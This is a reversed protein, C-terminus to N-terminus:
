VTADIITGVPQNTDTAQNAAAQANRDKDTENAHKLKYKTEEDYTVKGDKNAEM